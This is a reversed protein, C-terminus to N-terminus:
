IPHSDFYGDPGVYLFNGDATRITITIFGQTSSPSVKFQCNRYEPSRLLIKQQTTANIIEIKRDSNSPLYFQLDKGIVCFKDKLQEATMRKPPDSLIQDIKTIWSNREEESDAFFYYKEGTKLGIMFSNNRKIVGDAPKVHVFQLLDLTHRPNAAERSISIYLMTDYLFVYRRRWAKLWRSQKMLWGEKILQAQQEDIQMGELHTM